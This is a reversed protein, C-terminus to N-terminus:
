RGIKYHVQVIAEHPSLMLARETAKASTGVAGRFSVGEPPGFVAKAGQLCREKTNFYMSFQKIAGQELLSTHDVFKSGAQKV